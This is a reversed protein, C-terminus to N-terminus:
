FDEWMEKKLSEGDETEEEIEIYANEDLWHRFEKANAFQFGLIGRRAIEDENEFGAVNVKDAFSWIQSNLKKAYEKAEKVREFSDFTNGDILVKFTMKNEGKMAEYVKNRIWRSGGNDRIWATVDKPLYYTVRMGGAPTQRPAGVSKKETM